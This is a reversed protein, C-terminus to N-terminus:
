KLDQSQQAVLWPGLGHRSRLRKMTGLRTVKYPLIHVCMVHLVCSAELAAFRSANIIGSPDGPPTLPARMSPILITIETSSRLALREM